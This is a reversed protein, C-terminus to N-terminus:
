PKQKKYTRVELLHCAEILQIIRKWIFLIDCADYSGSISSGSLAYESLDALIKGWEAETYAVTFKELVLYPDAYQKASLHRPFCEWASGKQYPHVYNKKLLIDPKYGGSIILKAKKLHYRKNEIIFVTTLLRELHEAFFVVHYPAGKYWFRNSTAISIIQETIKIAHRFGYYDFFDHIIGYCYVSEANYHLNRNM